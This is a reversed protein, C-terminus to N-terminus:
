LHRRRKISRFAEAVVSATKNAQPQQHQQQQPQVLVLPPPKRIAARPTPPVVNLICRTGNDTTTTLTPKTKKKPKQSTKEKAKKVVTVQRFLVDMNSLGGNFHSGVFRNRQTLSNNKRIPATLPVRQPLGLLSSLQNANDNITLSNPTSQLTSTSVKKKAPETRSMKRKIMRRRSLLPPLEDAPVPTEEYPNFLELFDWLYAMMNSRYCDRPICDRLFQSLPMHPGLYFAVRQLLRVLEDAIIREDSKNDQQIRLQQQQKKQKKKTQKKLAKIRTKRLCAAWAKIFSSSSSSSSSSSKQAPSGDEESSTTIAAWVMVILKVHTRIQGLQQQKTDDDASTTTTQIATPPVVVFASPPEYSTQWVLSALGDSGAAVVARRIQSRLENLRSGTQVKEQISRWGDVAADDVVTEDMTMKRRLKKQPKRRTAIFLSM